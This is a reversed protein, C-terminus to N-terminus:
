LLKYPKHNLIHYIIIAPFVPNSGTDFTKSVEMNATVGIGQIKNEVGSKLIRKRIIEM